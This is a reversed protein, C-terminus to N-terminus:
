IVYQSTLALLTADKVKADFFRIFIAVLCIIETDRPHLNEVFRDFFYFSNCIGFRVLTYLTLDLRCFYELDVTLVAQFAPLLNCM